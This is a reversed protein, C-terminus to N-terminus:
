IVYDYGVSESWNLRTGDPRAGTSITDRRRVPMKRWPETTLNTVAPLCDLTPATGPIADLQGTKIQDLATLFEKEQELLSTPAPNGRRRRLAVAAMTANCWKMWANGSLQAETYKYNVLAMNIKVAAREIANAYVTSETGSSDVLGNENDDM